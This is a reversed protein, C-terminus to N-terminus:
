VTQTRGRQLLKGVDKLEHTQRGPATPPVQVVEDVGIQVSLEVLGALELAHAPEVEGVVVGDDEALHFDAAAGGVVM